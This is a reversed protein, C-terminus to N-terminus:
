HMPPNLILELFKERLHPQIRDEPPFGLAKLAYAVLDLEARIAAHGAILAPCYGEPVGPFGINPLEDECAKEYAKMEPSDLDAKYTIEHNTIREKTWVDIIVYQLLVENRMKDIKTKIEAARKKTTRYLAIRSLTEPSRCFTKLSAPTLKNINHNM